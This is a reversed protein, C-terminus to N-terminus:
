QVGGHGAKSQARILYQFTFLQQLHETTVNKIVVRGLDVDRPWSGGVPMDADCSSIIEEVLFGNKVFMEGIEQLTFFRIHTADLLGQSSYAWRGVVLNQLLRVNQVNPISALVRGGPKLYEHFSSVITWPDYLHELVDACIIADFSHKRIGYHELSIQEINATIVQDLGARAETAAEPDLEVGIYRVEPHLRKVEKGTAGAGCGLELVDHFPFQMMDIVETRPRDQYKEEYGARLPNFRPIENM